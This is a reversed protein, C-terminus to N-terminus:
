DSDVVALAVCHFALDWAAFWPYEWKDPMSIIDANFLHTWEHNRGHWRSAPPAACAPDGKLWDEVVYHYFQKSWLLGAFAQRMVKAGDASLDPPIITAYYEDAERLRAAFVTDFSKDFADASKVKEALRLRLEVTEGAPITLKYRLAAKTGTRSPNVAATEGHVVYDNIGDKVYGGGYGYLRRTNTE